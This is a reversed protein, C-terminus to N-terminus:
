RLKGLRYALRRVPRLARHFAPFLHLRPFPTPDSPEDIRGWRGGVVAKAWELRLRRSVYDGIDSKM